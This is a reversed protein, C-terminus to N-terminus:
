LVPPCWSQGTPDHLLRLGRISLGKSRFGLRSSSLAIALLVGPFGRPRIVRVEWNKELDSSSLELFLLYQDHSKKLLYPLFYLFFSCVTNSFGLTNHLQTSKRQSPAHNRNQLCVEATPPGEPSSQKSLQMQIM